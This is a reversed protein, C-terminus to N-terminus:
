TVEEALWGDLLAAEASVPRDQPCFRLLSQCFNRCTVQDPWPNCDWDIDTERMAQYIASQCRTEASQSPFAETQLWEAFIGDSFPMKGTMLLYLVVGVGFLDSQPSFVGLFCEPASFRATGVWGLRHLSIEAGTPDFNPEALDFDILMVRDDGSAESSHWVMNDPKIDRHLVGHRHLHGVAALVDRMLGQMATAPIVGDSFRQLLGDILTGRRAKEMVVYFFRQDELVEEPPLVGPHRELNMMKTLVSRYHEVDSKDMAAKPRMKLVLTQAPPSGAKPSLGDVKRYCVVVKGGCGSEQLVTDWSFLDFIKEGEKMPHIERYQADPHSVPEPSLQSPSFTISPRQLLRRAL